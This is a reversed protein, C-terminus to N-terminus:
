TECGRVRTRWANGAVGGCMGSLPPISSAPRPPTHRRHLGGPAGDRRRNNQPFRIRFQKNASSAIGQFGDPARDNGLLHNSALNNTNLSDLGSNNTELPHSAKSISLFGMNPSGIFALLHNLVTNTIKLSDSGSSNSWFSHLAESISPLHHREIQVTESGKHDVPVPSSARSDSRPVDPAIQDQKHTVQHRAMVQLAVKLM